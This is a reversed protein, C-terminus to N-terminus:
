PASNAHGPDLCAAANFRKDGCVERASCTGDRRCIMARDLVAQRIAHYEVALRLCDDDVHRCGRRGAPRGAWRPAVGIDNTAPCGPRPCRFVPLNGNPIVTYRRCRPHEM